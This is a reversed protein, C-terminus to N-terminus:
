WSGTKRVKARVRLHFIRAQDPHTLPISIKAKPDAPFVNPTPDPPTDYYAPVWGGSCYKLLYTKM